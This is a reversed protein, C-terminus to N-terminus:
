KKSVDDIMEMEKFPISLVVHDLISKSSNSEYSLQYTKNLSCIGNCSTDRIHILFYPQCVDATCIGQLDAINLTCNYVDCCCYVISSLMEANYLNEFNQIQVGLFWETSAVQM